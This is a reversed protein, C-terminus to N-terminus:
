EASWDDDWVNYRSSGKVNQEYGDVNESTIQESSNTSLAIMITPNTKEIHVTPAIYRKKM